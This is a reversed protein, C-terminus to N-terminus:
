NGELEAELRTEIEALLEKQETLWDRTAGRATELRDCVEFFASQVLEIAKAINRTDSM